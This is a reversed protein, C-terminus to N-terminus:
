KKRAALEDLAENVFYRSRPDRNGLEERQRSLWDRAAVILAQEPPDIGLAQAIDRLESWLEASVELELRVVSM